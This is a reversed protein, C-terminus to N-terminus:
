ILHEAAAQRVQAVPLAGAHGGKDPHADVVQLAATPAFTCSGSAAAPKQAEQGEAGRCTQANVPQVSDAPVQGNYLLQAVGDIVTLQQNTRSNWGTQSPQGSRKHESSFTLRWSPFHSSMWTIVPAKFIYKLSSGSGSKM